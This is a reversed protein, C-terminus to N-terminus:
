LSIISDRFCTQYESGSWFCKKFEGLFWFFKNWHQSTNTSQGGRGLLKLKQTWKTPAHFRVHYWPWLDRTRTRTSADKLDEAGKKIEVNAGQEPQVHTPTNHLILPSGVEECYSLSKPESPQHVFGLVCSFWFRNRELSTEELFQIGAFCPWINANQSCPGLHSHPSLKLLAPSNWEKHIDWTSGNGNGCSYLHAHGLSRICWIDM